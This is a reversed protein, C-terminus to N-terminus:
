EARWETKRKKVLQIVIAAIAALLIVPEALMLAPVTGKTLTVGVSCLVVLAVALSLTLSCGLLVDKRRASLHFVRAVLLVLAPLLHCVVIAVVPMLWLSPRPMTSSAHGELDFHSPLEAPLTGYCVAIAIVMVALVAAMWLYLHRLSRKM